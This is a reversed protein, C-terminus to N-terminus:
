NAYYGAQRGASHEVHGGTSLLTQAAFIDFNGRKYGLSFNEAVTGYSGGEIKARADFGETTQHKPIFNIMGYGSGFRSPQPSKYIEMGGLAYVPIGDALAQGYLVGSRPVDDFTVNLDPSPHSAGRGRIYLSHSTQGGLINKKQYIVGPVNRLADYFDLADQRTIQEETVTNFQGGFRTTVPVAPSQEAIGYTTVHYTVSPLPSEGSFEPSPEDQTPNADPSDTQAFAASALTLLIFATRLLHQLRQLSELNGFNGLNEM